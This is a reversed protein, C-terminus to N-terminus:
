LYQLFSGNSSSLDSETTPMTLLGLFLFLEILSDHADPPYTELFMRVHPSHSILPLSVAYSIFSSLHSLLYPDLIFHAEGSQNKVLYILGVDHMINLYDEIKEPTMSILQSSLTNYDLLPPYGSLKLADLKSRITLNIESFLSDRVTVQRDLAAVQVM